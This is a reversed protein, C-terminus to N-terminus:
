GQDMMQDPTYASAEFWLQRGSDTHVSALSSRVAAENIVLPFNHSFDLQVKDLPAAAAAAAAM